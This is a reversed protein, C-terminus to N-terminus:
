FRFGATIPLFDSKANNPDIRMYRAEIFFSGHTSLAFEIGVGANRAFHWDSQTRAVISTISYTGPGCGWWNCIIGNAYNTQRYTNQQRFWGGGALLYGRVYPSFPLDLELDVDGGYVKETANDVRTGYDASAQNLLANRANFENYSGDVRVGVPLHSTPYWTFGAGANWGNNLNTANSKQTITGGADIQFFFPHYQFGNTIDPAAEWQPKTSQAAPLPAPVPYQYTPPPPSTTSPPYSPPPPSQPAAPTQTNQPPQPASQAPPPQVNQQVPPPSEQAPASPQPAPTPQPAPSPPPQPPQAEQPPTLPGQGAATGFCALLLLAVSTRSDIKM